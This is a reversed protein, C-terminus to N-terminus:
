VCQVSIKAPLTLGLPTRAVLQVGHAPELAYVPDLHGRYATPSLVFLQVSNENENTGLLAYLFNVTSQGRNTFDLVASGDKEYRVFIGDVAPKSPSRLAVAVGVAVAFLGACAGIKTRTTM